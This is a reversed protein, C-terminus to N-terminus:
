AIPTAGTVLDIHFEVQRYPPLGPLDEPFVEPFEKLVPIDKMQPGDAKKDIVLALFAICGKRLCKQAKMCNITRLSTNRKEGHIVLTDENPLPLRIIKEHCFVEAQNNSLWDM